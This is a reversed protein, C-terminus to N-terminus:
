MIAWVVAGVLVILGLIISMHVHPGWVDDNWYYALKKPSIAVSMIKGFNKVVWGMSIEPPNEMGKKQQSGLKVVYEEAMSVVSLLM